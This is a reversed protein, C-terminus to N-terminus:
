CENPNLCAVLLRWWIPTKASVPCYGEIAIERDSRCPLLNWALEVGTVISAFSNDSLIM